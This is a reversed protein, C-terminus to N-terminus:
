NRKGGSESGRKTRILLQLKTREKFYQEILYATSVSEEPETLYIIYM